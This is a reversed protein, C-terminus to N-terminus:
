SQSSLERAQARLAAVSEDAVEPTFRITPGGVSLAAVPAGDWGLVAVARCRLAPTLTEEDVAYGRQAAEYLEARLSELTAHPDSAGDARLFDLQRDEPLVSLVAKGMASRGAPVVEGTRNVARLPRPSESRAVIILRDGIVRGVTASEGTANTLARTAAMLRADGYASRAVAASMSILRPGPSTRGGDVEILFDWSRLQALLRSATSVPMGVQSAFESLSMTAGEDSVALELLDLLRALYSSSNEASHEASSDPLRSM